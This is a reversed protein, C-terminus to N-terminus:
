ARGAVVPGRGRGGVGGRPPRAAPAHNATAKGSGEGRGGVRWKSFRTSEPPSLRSLPQETPRHKHTDSERQTHRAARGGERARGGQGGGGTVTAELQQQHRARPLLWFGPSSSLQPPDGGGHGYRRRLPRQRRAATPGPPGILRTVLPFSAPVGHTAPGSTVSRRPGLGGRPPPRHKGGSNNQRASHGARRRSPLPVSSGVSGAPEPLPIASAAAGVARRPQRSRRASSM